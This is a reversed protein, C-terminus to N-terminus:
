AFGVVALPDNLESLNVVEAPGPPNAKVAKDFDYVDFRVEVSEELKRTGPLRTKSAPLDYSLRRPYGDDDIEVEVPLTKVRLERVLEEVSVRVATPAASRARALNVNLAFRRVTTGGVDEKGEESVDGAAGALLALNARPDSAQFRRALEDFVRGSPKGLGAPDLRIWRKEGLQPPTTDPIRLYLDRGDSIMPRVFPEQALLGQTNVNMTVLPRPNDVAGDGGLHVLRGSSDVVKVDLTFALTKVATARTATALVLSGVPGTPPPSAGSSASCGAGTTSLVLLLATALAARRRDV